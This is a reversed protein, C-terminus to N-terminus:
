KKKSKGLRLTWITKSTYCETIDEASIVGSYILNELTDEDISETKVICSKIQAKIEKDKEARALRKIVGILKDENISSKETPKYSLKLEGNEYEQISNNTMYEKLQVGIENLRAKLEKEKQKGESYQQLLKNIEM